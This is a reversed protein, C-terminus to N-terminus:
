KLCDVQLKLEIIQKWLPTLYKEEPKFVGGGKKLQWSWLVLDNGSSKNLFPALPRGDADDICLSM